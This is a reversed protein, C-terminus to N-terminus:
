ARISRRREPSLHPDDTNVEETRSDDLLTDILPCEPVENGDCCRTTETLVHEIRRLDSIKKRVDDLHLSAITKVDACSVKRRDVLDLLGRIGDISFGLERGRIIFRLRDEHLADYRRYGNAARGPDPMLGIKEYYRVTELNCGSRQALEGRTLNTASKSM